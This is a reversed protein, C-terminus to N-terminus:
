CACRLRLTNAMLCQNSGHMPLLLTRLLPRRACVRGQCLKACCLWLTELLACSNQHCRCTLVSAVVDPCGVVHRRVHSVWVMGMNGRQRYTRAHLYCHFHYLLVLGKYVLFCLRLCGTRTHMCFRKTTGVTRPSHLGCATAVFAMSAGALFGM